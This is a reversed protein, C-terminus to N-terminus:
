GGAPLEVGTAATQVKWDLGDEAAFATGLVVVSSADGEGM